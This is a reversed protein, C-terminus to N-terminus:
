GARGAGDRALVVDVGIKLKKWARETTIVPRSLAAGLALCARDGLSLGFTRTLPRLLGAAIADQQDFARVELGLPNLARRIEAEPMGADALKAVVESFNVASVTAGPLRASVLGSGPEGQLLALVASADLVADAM